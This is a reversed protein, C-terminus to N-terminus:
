GASGAEMSKAEARLLGAVFTLERAIRRLSKTYEPPCLIRDVLRTMRLEEAWPELAAQRTERRAMERAMLTRAKALVIRREAARRTAPSRRWPRSLGFERGHCLSPVPGRGLAKGLM